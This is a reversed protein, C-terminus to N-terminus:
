KKNRKGGGRANRDGKTGTKAGRNVSSKVFSNTGHNYDMGKINQGKAEAERRKANAETRKKVQEPRQNLKKDYAAKKKRSEPHDRYFIASKSKATM